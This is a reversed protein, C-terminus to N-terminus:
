LVELKSIGLFKRDEEGVTKSKSTRITTVIVVEFGAAAAMIARTKTEGTATSLPILLKKFNGEGYENNLTYQVQTETGDAVPTATSDILELTELLKLKVIVTPNESERKETISIINARYAGAPPTLFEPVDALDELQSDLISDLLSM